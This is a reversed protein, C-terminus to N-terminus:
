CAGKPLNDSSIEASLKTGSAINTLRSSSRRNGSSKEKALKKVKKPPEEDETEKVAEAPAEEAVPEETHGNEPAAEETHGNEAAAEETHGNEAAPAPTEETHGNEKQEVDGNVAVEAVEAAATEQVESM